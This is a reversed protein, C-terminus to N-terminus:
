NVRGFVRGFAMRFTNRMQSALVNAAAASTVSVRPHLLAQLPWYWVHRGAFAAVNNQHYIIM